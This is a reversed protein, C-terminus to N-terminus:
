EGEGFLSGHFRDSLDSPQPQPKVGPKTKSPKLPSPPKQSLQKKKIEEFARQQAKREIIQRRVEERASKAQARVLEGYEEIQRESTVPTFRRQLKGGFGYGGGPQQYGLTPSLMGGEFVRVQGEPTHIVAGERYTERVPTPTGKFPLQPRATYPLQPTPPRLSAPLAPRSALPTVVEPTIVEPTIVKGPTAATAGKGARLGLATLGLALPTSVMGLAGAAMRGTLSGPQGVPVQPLGTMGRVGQELRSAPLTRLFQEVREMGPLPTVAVRGMRKAVEGFGVEGPHAQYFSQEVAQRDEPTLQTYRPDQKLQSINTIKAM